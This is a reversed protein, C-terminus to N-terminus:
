ALPRAVLRDSTHDRPDAEYRGRRRHERVRGAPDPQQNALGGSMNVFDGQLKNTQDMLLAVRAQAKDQATLGKETKAPGLAMAKAKVAADSMGVGFRELPDAEGRLGAQIAELAVPVSTNFVSAM